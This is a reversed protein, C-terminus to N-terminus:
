GDVPFDRHGKVSVVSRRTACSCRAGDADTGAAAAVGIMVLWNDYRQVARHLAALHEVAHDVLVVPGGLGGASGAPWAKDRCKSATRADVGGGPAAAGRCSRGRALNDSILGRRIAANLAARLTARIRTLTAASVLTGLAQHQRIIATFMAQVQGTTLETLLV